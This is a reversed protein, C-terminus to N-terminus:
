TPGGAVREPAFPRGVTTAQLREPVTVDLMQVEFRLFYHFISPVDYSNPGHPANQRLM